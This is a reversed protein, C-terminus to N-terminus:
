DGARRAARKAVAFALALAIVLIGGRLAAKLNFDLGLLDLGNGLVGLFLVGVLTGPVNPRYRPHMSAGIFVSAIADLLYAFGANPTYIRLGSSLIIGGIASTVGSLIFVLARYRRTRIGAIRAASDQLGMADIRAGHTSRELVVFFVALVVLGILVENPIGFVDGTAILQFAEPADRYSINAGGGTGIQQASRGIFFTGLTALFPTVGLGVILFANLAGVIAGGVLALVVALAWHLDFTLMAVIAFWAGFDLAVGVSLDIGGSSVVMTMALAVFLLIMSGELVNLLNQPTLFASATVTFTVVLAAFGALFAYQMLWSGVSRRAPGQGVELSESM